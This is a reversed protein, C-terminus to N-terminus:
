ASLSSKDGSQYILLWYYISRSVDVSIHSIYISLYETIELIIFYKYIASVTFGAKLKLDCPFYINLEIRLQTM